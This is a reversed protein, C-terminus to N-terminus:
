NHKSNIQLRFVHSAPNQIPTGGHIPPGWQRACTVMQASLRSALPYLYKYTKLFYIMNVVVFDNYQYGRIFIRYILWNSCMWVGLCCDM